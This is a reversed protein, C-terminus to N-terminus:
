YCYQYILLVVDNIRNPMISKTKTLVKVTLIIQNETKPDQKISKISIPFKCRERQHDIQYILFGNNHLSACVGQQYYNFFISAPLRGTQREPLDTFYSVQEQQVPLRILYLEQNKQNINGYSAHYISLIRLHNQTQITQRLKLNNLTQQKGLSNDAAFGSSISFMLLLTIILAPLRQFFKAHYFQNTKIFYEMQLRVIQLSSLWSNKNNNNKIFSAKDETLHQALTVERREPRKTIM